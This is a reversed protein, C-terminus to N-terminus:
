DADRDSEEQATHAALRALQVALARILEWDQDARAVEDVLREALDAAQSTPDDATVAHL